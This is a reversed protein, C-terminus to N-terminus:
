GNPSITSLYSTYLPLNTLVSNLLVLRGGRSLYHGKWCALKNEVRDILPQWDLQSLAKSKISLGLYSLRFSNRKAVFFLPPTPSPRTPVHVWNTCLLCIMTIKLGSLLEFCHSLLKLYLISNPDDPILLIM